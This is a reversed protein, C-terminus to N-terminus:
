CWILCTAVVVKHLLHQDYMSWLNQDMRDVEGMSNPQDIEVRGGKDKIYRCGRKMPEKGYLTSAVTVVKDNKWRVLIVNSKGDNVVDSSGRAKKKMDDVAQLPTNETRNARVTGTAAMGNGMLLRLLSPSTFFNDMVVHYNSNPVTPLKSM